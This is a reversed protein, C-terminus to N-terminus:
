ATLLKMRIVAPIDRSLIGFPNWHMRGTANGPNSIAWGSKWSVSRSTSRTPWEKVTQPITHSIPRRSIMLVRSIHSARRVRGTGTFMPNLHYIKYIIKLVTKENFGIAENRFLAWVRQFRTYCKWPLYGKDEACYSLIGALQQDKDSCTEQCLLIGKPDWPPFM